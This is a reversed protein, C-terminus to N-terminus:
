KWSKDQWWPEGWFHLANSMSIFEVALSAAIYLLLVPLPAIVQSHVICGEHSSQHLILKLDYRVEIHQDLVQINQISM